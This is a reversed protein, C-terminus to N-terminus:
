TLCHKVVNKKTFNYNKHTNSQIQLYKEFISWIDFVHGKTIKLEFVFECFTLICIYIQVWGQTNRHMNTTLKLDYLCRSQSTHKDTLMHM